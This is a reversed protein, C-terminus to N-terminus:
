VINLLKKKPKLLHSVSNRQKLDLNNFNKHIWKIQKKTVKKNNLCVYSCHNSSGMAIFHDLKLINDNPISTENKLAKRLKSDKIKHKFLIKQALIRHEGYKCPYFIGKPSLWGTLGKKDKM